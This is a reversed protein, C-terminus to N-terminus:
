QPEKGELLASIEDACDLSCPGENDDTHEGHWKEVLGAMGTRLRTLESGMAQYDAFWGEDSACATVALLREYKEPTSHGDWKQGRFRPLHDFMVLESDHIHWTAQGTSLEIFV